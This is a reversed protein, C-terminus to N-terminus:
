VVNVIVSGVITGNLTDTMTITHMAIKNLVVGTFTHVGNDAATFTYSSPLNGKGNVSSIRITGRYGTTVNGYADLASVTISFPAGATVTSPAMLAFHSAASPSVVIGTESGNIGAFVADTASISQTGATKLTASFTHVGADGATFTYDAPLSANGDSSKFHVTGLYGTATNGYPDRATVTFSGAVGATTSAPFGAVVLNSAAAPYVTIGETGNLGSPVTDTATIWQTGATKLTATFTHVGQDASTFTYDAPLVAQPDSSTLHVTGAYGTATTGDSNKATVTFAGATGATTTSPFGAVALSAATPTLVEYAGIDTTEGAVDLRKVGRQDTAPALANNGNGIALSGPLLAMTQTPGGNNQLPGVGPNIVRFINGVGNFVPPGSGGILCYNMTIVDGAYAIDSGFGDNYTNNAVITNTLNVTPLYTGIGIGGGVINNYCRNRSITCNTLTTTGEAVFLGGGGGVGAAAASNGSLTCNTLTAYAPHLLSNQGANFIGGGYFRASNGSLTCQNVTLAGTNLIGGGDTGSNGSLTSQSVTLTGGNSIGGGGSLLGGNGSLTCQSVTLTSVNSIGCGLANSITLGSLVVPQAGTVHFVQSLHNGSITLLSAGPGQITLNKSIALYGSTLTITQGNLSPAFVITDGSQAAAIDARLSGPGSDLNNLVTLTSPLWRDELAELRPRFRPATPRTQFGDCRTSRTSTRNRLWSFFSM